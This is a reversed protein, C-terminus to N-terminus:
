ISRRVIRSAIWRPLPRSFEGSVVWETDVQEIFHGGLDFGIKKIKAALGATVSYSDRYTVSLRFERLGNEIRQRAIERWADEHPFWAVDAPIRPVSGALTAVYETGRRRTKGIKGTGGAGVISLADAGVEAGVNQSWGETTTVQVRTAGLSTVLRMAEAYKHDFTRRHFQALPYYHRNAAPNAAYVGDIVPHGPPLALGRAESYTIPLLPAAQSRSRQAAVAAGSAISAVMLPVALPAFVLPATARLATLAVAAMLGGQLLAEDLNETATGQSRRAALVIEDRRVVVFRRDPFPVALVDIETDASRRDSGSEAM